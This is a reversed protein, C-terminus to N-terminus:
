TSQMKQRYASPTMRYKELFCASFYSSSNFGCKLAIDTLSATENMLMIRAQQLRLMNLFGIPTDGTVSKFLKSFHGASLSVLGALEEVTIKESFHSNMYTIARDIEFRDYLPVANRTDSILSLVVLHAIVPVLSNLMPSPVQRSSELMFCRLLGLLEPHPVFADGRFVPLTDEYQLFTECFLEAEIVIAIYSQYFDEAVEQHPVGPSMASLCKGGVLDHSMHRGEVIVDSVPQFYYIFTYAPHTHNEMVAYACQGRSPVFLCLRPHLYCDLNRSMIDATHETVSGVLNNIIELEAGDFKM